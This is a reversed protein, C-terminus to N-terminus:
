SKSFDKKLETIMKDTIEKSNNKYLMISDNFDDKKETTKKNFKETKYKQQKQDRVLCEELVNFFDDQYILYLHKARRCKQCLNTLIVREQECFHCLFM